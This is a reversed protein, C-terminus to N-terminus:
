KSGAARQDRRATTRTLVALISSIRDNKVENLKNSAVRQCSVSEVARHPLENGSLSRITLRVDSSVLNDTISELAQLLVLMVGQLMTQTVHLLGDAFGDDLMEAGHPM